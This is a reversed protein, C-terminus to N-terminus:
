HLQFSFSYMLCNSQCIKTSFALCIGSKYKLEQGWESRERRIKFGGEKGEENGLGGEM